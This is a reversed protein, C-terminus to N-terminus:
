KKKVKITPSIAELCTDGNSLTTQNTRAFFKGKKAKKDIVWEGTSDTVDTGKRKNGKKQFLEVTQSKECLTNESNIQGKFREDNKKYAISLTRAFSNPPPDLPNTSNGVTVTRNTAAAPSGNCLMAKGTFIRTTSCGESDTVTLTATFSGPNAYIHNPTPGGDALTTGDGFNWDFRRGSTDVDTTASADFGVPQGAPANAVTFSAIPAQNPTIVISELDPDNGTAFGLGNNLQTLAGNAAVKFGFVKDDTGGASVYLYQGDPTIALGKGATDAAGTAFPQGPVATLTGNANITYANVTRSIRTSVYLHDGDPAIAINLPHNGPAANINFQQASLTGNANVDFGAIRGNAGDEPNSVYLHQGDPTIGSGFPNPGGALNTSGTSVGKGGTGQLPTPTGAANVSYSTTYNQEFGGVIESSNEMPVYLNNGSPAWSASFPNSNPAPVPFTNAAPNSLAGSSQNRPLVSIASGHNGAFIFTGNPNPWLSLANVASAGNGAAIPAATPSLGGNAQVTFQSINNGGFHAVYVNKADPSTAIGETITQGPTDFPSGPVPTLNGNANIRLAAVDDTGALGSSVYTYRTASAGAPAVLAVTVLSAVLTYGVSRGWRAASGM